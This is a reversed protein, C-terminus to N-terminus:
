EAGLVFEGEDTQVVQLVKPAAPGDVSPTYPEEPPPGSFVPAAAAEPYLPGEVAPEGKRPASLFSQGDALVIKEADGIPEERGSLWLNHDSPVAFEKRIYEGTVPGPHAGRPGGQYRITITPRPKSQPEPTPAPQEPAPPPQVFMGIRNVAKRCDDLASEVLHQRGDIGGVTDVVRGVSQEIRSGTSGNATAQRLAENATREIRAIIGSQTALRGDIGRVGDGLGAIYGNLWVQLEVPDLEATAEAYTMPSVGVAGKASPRPAYDGAPKDPAVPPIGTLSPDTM